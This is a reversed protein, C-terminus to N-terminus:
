QVPSVAPLDDKWSLKDDNAISKIIDKSIRNKFVIQFSVVQIANKEHLPSFDMFYIGKVNEFM